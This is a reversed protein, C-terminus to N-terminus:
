KELRYFQKNMFDFYIDTLNYYRSKITQHLNMDYVINSLQMKSIDSANAFKTSVEKIYFYILTGEKEMCNSQIIENNLEVKKLRMNITTDVQANVFNITLISLIILTIKKM